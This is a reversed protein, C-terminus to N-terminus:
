TREGNLFTCHQPITAATVVPVVIEAVPVTKEDASPDIPPIVTLPTSGHTSGWLALFISVLSIGVLGYTYVGFWHGRKIPPPPTTTDEEEEDDHDGGKQTPPNTQLESLVEGEENMEVVSTTVVVDTTPPPPTLLANGEADEEIIFASPLLAPASDDLDMFTAFGKPPRTRPVGYATPLIPETQSKGNGIDVLRLRRNSKRFQLKLLEQLTQDTKGGITRKAVSSEKPTGFDDTKEEPCGPDTTENFLVEDFKLDFDTRDAQNPVSVKEFLIEESRTLASM